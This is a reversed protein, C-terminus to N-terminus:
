VVFVGLQGSFFSDEVEDTETGYFEDLIQIAFSVCSYASEKYLESNSIIDEFASAYISASGATERTTTVAGKVLRKLAISLMYLGFYSEAFLMNRMASELKTLSGFDKLDFEAFTDSDYESLGTMYIGYYTEGLNELLERSANSLIQLNIRDAASTTVNALQIMKDKIVTQHILPSAPM